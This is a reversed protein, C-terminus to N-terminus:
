GRHNMGLGPFGPTLRVEPRACSRPRSTSRSQSGELPHELEHHLKHDRRQQDARRGDCRAPPTM